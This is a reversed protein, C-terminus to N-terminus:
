EMDWQNDDAVDYDMMTDNQQQQQQHQDTPPGHSEAPRDLIISVDKDDSSSSGTGGALHAATVALNKASAATKGGHLNHGPASASAGTNM